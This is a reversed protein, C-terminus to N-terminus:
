PIADTRGDTRGDMRGETRKFLKQTDSLLHGRVGELDSPRIDLVCYCKIRFGQGSFIKFVKYTVTM